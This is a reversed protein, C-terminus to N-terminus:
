SMLGGHEVFSPAMPAKSMTAAQINHRDVFPTGIALDPKNMCVAALVLFFGLIVAIRMKM